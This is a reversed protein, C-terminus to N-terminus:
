SATDIAPNKILRDAEARVTGALADAKRLPFGNQVLAAAVLSQAIDGYRELDAFSVDQVTSAIDAVPREEANAFLRSLGKTLAEGAQKGGDKAADRLGDLFSGLLLTAATTVVSIPDLHSMEDNELYAIDTGIKATIALISREVPQPDTM